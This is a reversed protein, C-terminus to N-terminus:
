APAFRRLNDHGISYGRGDSQTSREGCGGIVLQRVDDEGLPQRDLPIAFGEIRGMAHGALWEVEISVADHTSM